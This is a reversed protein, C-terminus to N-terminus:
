EGSPPVSGAAWATNAKPGMELLLQGGSIIDDHTLWSENHPRGNLTASQIYKNEASCNRADVEFFKGNGLDIRAHSFLPSGIAYVPLGPTVPYFGLASFVVFASTGGGDEDGPLGMLDNRFWQALLSRIRKQTKWPQGAYNYLYPIHLSPENAMSFQGVNGTHDPLHAYFAFKSEGLPERFTADLNAAFQEPSGMLGVLAAIHHQIDWRYVWGNNEDYADRAGQGGSYRYDFPEIFKGDKDKPHFFGTESNYVNLYNRSRALFYAHDDPRKLEKAIQSLCWDDFCTGLTVAIPQRKEGPTVAAVYEAEGTRLAPFYGKEKYFDDLEGAEGRVWPILTETLISHKCAEYGGALDFDRLGKAWADWLISVTHNANMGHNDGTVQPFTPMWGEPSQQAMRIYSNIMATEEKPNILVRLPHAARFTDWIWDDTYFPIGGDDHVKDDFGSYYRGDESINVMREYVRYLSSYFITKDNESGGEVAIKGLADNWIDRGKASVERYDYTAIDRHLNAKAQEEDIYSVGYRLRVTKVDPGFSLAVARDSGEATDVSSIEGNLIAGAAVPKSDTEMYVYVAAPSNRRGLSQFGQVAGEPMVSIQGRRTRIIIKRDGDGEFNFEYIGAQHSPAYHVQIRAEDLYVSYEYPTVRENDYSYNVASELPGNGAIPSIGFASNGRHGTVIVPLGRLLDSTFDAREPYIRMMSNPLHVTPYTPVLLISINGMYPNVYDVPSKEANPAQGCAALSLIFAAMFFAQIFRQFM